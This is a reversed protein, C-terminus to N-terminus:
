TANNHTPNYYGRFVIKKEENPYFTYYHCFNTEWSSGFIDDYTVTGWVFLRRTEGKMIEQVDSDSFRTNVVGQIVFTQKPTLVVDHQQIPGGDSLVAEIIDAVNLIRAVIKYSVNRAPTLGTNILVPSGAFNLHEDQYTGTGTDAVVYARMQKQIVQQMLATNNRTAEAVDSM